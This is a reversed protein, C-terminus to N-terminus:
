RAGDSKKWIEHGWEHFSELCSDVWSAVRYVVRKEDYARKPERGADSDLVDIM